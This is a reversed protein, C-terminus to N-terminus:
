GNWKLRRLARNQHCGDSRFGLNLNPYQPNSLLRHKERNIAEATPVLERVAKKLKTSYWALAQWFVCVAIDVDNVWVDRRGAAVIRLGIAGGGAFPERYQSHTM